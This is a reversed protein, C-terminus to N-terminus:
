FCKAYTLRSDEASALVLKITNPCTNEPLYKRAPIGKAAMEVAANRDYIAGPWIAGLGAM